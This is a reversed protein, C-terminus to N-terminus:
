SEAPPAMVFPMNQRYLELRTRYDAIAAADDRPVFTIAREQTQVANEFDGNAAYACALADIYAPQRPAIQNARQADALAQAPNRLTEDPAAALVLSRNILISASDPFLESAANYAELAEEYIGARFYADGRQLQIWFISGNANVARDFDALARDTNGQKEHALARLTYRIARDYRVNRGTVRNDQEGLQRTCAPIAVRPNASACRGFELSFCAEYDGTGCAARTGDGLDYSNIRNDQAAASLPLCLGAFLVIGLLYKM